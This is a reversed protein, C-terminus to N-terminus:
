TSMMMRVAERLTPDLNTEDRVAAIQELECGKRANHGEETTESSTAKKKRRRHDLNKPREM